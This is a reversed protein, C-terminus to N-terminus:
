SCVLIDVIDVSFPICNYRSHCRFVTLVCFPLCAHLRYFSCLIVFFTVMVLFISCSLSFVNAFVCLWVFFVFLFKCLSNTRLGDSLPVLPFLVMYTANGFRENAWPFLPFLYWTTHSFVKFSCGKYLALSLTCQVVLLSIIVRFSRWLPLLQWGLCNWKKFRWGNYM